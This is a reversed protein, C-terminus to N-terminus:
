RTVEHSTSTVPEGLREVAWRDLETRDYVPIRGDRRFAPGGGICAYKALTKTAITIGHRQNLYNSAEARRLRPKSEISM